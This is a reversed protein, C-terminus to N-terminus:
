KAGKLIAEVDLVCISGNSNGTALRTGARDFTLSHVLGPFRWEHVKELTDAHWVIVRADSTATALFRSDHSWVTANLKAFTNDRASTRERGTTM